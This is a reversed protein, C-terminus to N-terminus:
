VGAQLRELEAQKAALIAQLNDLGGDDEEDDDYVEEDYSADTYEEIVEEEVYEEEYEDEHYQDQQAAKQQQELLLQQQRQLEQLKKLKEQQERLKQQQEALKNAIPEPAPAARAEEYRNTEIVSHIDRVPNVPPISTGEQQNTEEQRENRKYFPEENSEVSLKPVDNPQVRRRMHKNPSDDYQGKRINAGISTANLKKKAWAPKFSLTEAQRGYRGYETQKLNNMIGENTMGTDKRAIAGMVEFYGPPLKAGTLYAEYDPDTELIGFLKPDIVPQGVKFNRGGPGMSKISGNATEMNWPTLPTWKMEKLNPGLKPRGDPGMVGAEDAAALQMYYFALQDEAFRKEEVDDDDLEYHPTIDMWWQPVRGVGVPLAEPM